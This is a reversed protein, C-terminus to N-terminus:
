DRDNCGGDEDERLDFSPREQSFGGTRLADRLGLVIKV